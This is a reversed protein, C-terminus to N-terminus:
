EAESYLELFQQLVQIFAHNLHPRQAQVRQGNFWGVHSDRVYEDLSQKLDAPLHAFHVYALSEHRGPFWIPGYEWEAVDIGRRLGQCSFQTVIGPLQNFGQVVAAIESDITAPAPAPMTAELRVHEKYAPTSEWHMVHTDILKYLHKFLQEARDEQARMLKLQLPNSAGRIPCLQPYYANSNRTFWQEVRAWHVTGALCQQRYAQDNVFKRAFARIHKTHTVFLFSRSLIVEANHEIWVGIEAGAENGSAYEVTFVYEGITYTELIARM